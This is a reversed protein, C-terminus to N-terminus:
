SSHIGLDHALHSGGIERFSQLLLSQAFDLQSFIFISFTFDLVFIPQLRILRTVDTASNEEVDKAKRAVYLRESLIDNKTVDADSKLSTRSVSRHGAMTLKVLKTFDVKVGVKLAM